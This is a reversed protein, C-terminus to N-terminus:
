HVIAVNKNVVTDVTTQAQAGGTWVVAVKGGGIHNLGTNSIAGGSNTVVATNGQNVTVHDFCNCGSVVAVNKNAVTSVGTVALAAGTKVVAVKGGGIGNLGTNAIAGGTNTVVATNGQNVVLEDNFLAFAPVASALLLGAAAGTTVLKKIM